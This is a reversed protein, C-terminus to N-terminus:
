FNFQAQSPNTKLQNEFDPMDAGEAEARDLARNVLADVHQIKEHNRRVHRFTIQEFSDALQKAKLYLERIHPTKVRYEGNIQKCVLESDVYYDITKIKMDRAMQLGCIVASYEAINNTAKGIVAGHDKIHAGNPECILVGIASPGPNGRAGGDSFIQYNESM